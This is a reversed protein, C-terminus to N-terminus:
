KAPNPSYCQKQLTELDMKRIRDMLMIEADREAIGRAQEQVLRNLRAADTHALILQHTSWAVFGSGVACAITMIAVVIWLRRIIRRATNLEGLTDIGQEDMKQETMARENETHVGSDLRQPNGDLAVSSARRTAVDSCTESDCTRLRGSKQTGM